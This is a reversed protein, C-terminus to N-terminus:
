DSETGLRMAEAVSTAGARVLNLARHAMTRGQMQERALKSFEVLDARTAAQALEINMELMEYVGIRGVYGTGNCAACGRGRLTRESAASEGALATLWGAEQPTPIHTEACNSCNARVLRQAIVAQLSSAVMFAPAGMDLLRFPASIADRTHLSSLVLHGTIAARLGIDATELDRIEGVLIVDPDQRLTSRLVRAFSLEIKDNVQVQTLGPLRYEIPDEVTIVKLREADIEALAAYLTTTKGVGTPGTVLVMGSSRGLIEHFRILLDQPMGIEDLRRMGKGHALLRLVVSEGHHSPMTSIRVDIGDDRVRVTFRGDQPLRKESIDLGAMLKLRQALAAGIRKDAQTQTQLVGDVRSRIVLGGDQPEIHIDSAGMQVADEFVSQLLRVVPASEASASADFAGNDAAASVDIELAKALGTIEDTRRYHRDLAPVLQSEPVVAIRVQRKLLRSLEDYAVLDLPDVFGVLLHEHQDELVIARLRRAPSEPLLRVTSSNLTYNKLNVAPVRLQRALGHAVAEETVFGVEILLRGLRKGTGRQMELATQLQEETILMQKVLVDGLRLRERRAPPMPAPTATPTGAAAIAAATLEETAAWQLPTLMDAM